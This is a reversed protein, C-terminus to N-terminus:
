DLTQVPAALPIHLTEDLGCAACSLAYWEAYPRASRDIIELGAKGCAPCVVPTQPDARWQAMLRSAARQQEATLAM